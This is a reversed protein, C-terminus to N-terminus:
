PKMDELAKRQPSPKKEEPKKEEGTIWGWRRKKKKDKAEQEEEKSATSARGFSSLGIAKAAQARADSM